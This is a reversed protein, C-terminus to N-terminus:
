LGAGNGYLSHSDGRYQCDIKFSSDDRISVDCHIRVRIRLKLCGGEGSGVQFPEVQFNGCMAVVVAGPFVGESPGIGSGCAGFGSYGKMRAVTKTQLMRVVIM